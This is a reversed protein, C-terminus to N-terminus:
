YKKKLRQSYNGPLSQKVGVRSAVGKGTPVSQMPTQEKAPRAKPRMNSVGYDKVLPLNAGVKSAPRAQPRMPPKEPANNPRRSPGYSLSAEPRAQPRTAGTPATTTNSTARSPPPTDKAVPATAEAVKEKPQKHMQASGLQSQHNYDKYLPNKAM